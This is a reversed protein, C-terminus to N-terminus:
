RQEVDSGRAVGDTQVRPGCCPWRGYEIAWDTSENGEADGRRSWSRISATPAFPPATSRLLSWSGGDSGRRRHSKTCVGCSGSSSPGRTLVLAKTAMTTRRAMAQSSHHSIWLDPQRGPVAAPSGPVFPARGLGQRKAPGSAPAALTIPRCTARRASPPRPRLKGVGRHRRRPVSRETPETPGPEAEALDPEARKRPTFRPCDGQPSGQCVHSTHRILIGAPQHGPGPRCWAAVTHSPVTHVSCRAVVTDVGGTGEVETVARRNSGVVPSETWGAGTM